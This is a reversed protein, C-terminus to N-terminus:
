IWQLGYWFVIGNAKNKSPIKDSWGIVRKIPNWDDKHLPSFVRCSIGFLIKKWAQRINEPFLVLIGVIVTGTNTGILLQWRDANYLMALHLM